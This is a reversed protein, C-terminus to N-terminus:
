PCATTGALTCTGETGGDFVAGVCRAPRECAPGTVTNCPADDKANAVCRDTTGGDAGKVCTSDNACVNNAGSPQNGCPQGAEVLTVPQCTRFNASTKLSVCYLGAAINCESATEHKSDCTAGVTVGDAV